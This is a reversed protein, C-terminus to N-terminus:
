PPMRSTRASSPMSTRWPLRSLVFDRILKDFGLTDWLGYGVVALMPLRRVPWIDRTIVRLTLFAAIPMTVVTLVALLVLSPWGGFCALGTNGAIARRAHQTAAREYMFAM